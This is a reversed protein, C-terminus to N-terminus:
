PYRSPPAAISRAAKYALGTINLLQNKIDLKRQNIHQCQCPNIFFLLDGCPSSYREEICPTKDADLKRVSRQLTFEFGQTGHTKLVSCVHEITINGMGRTQLESFLLEIEPTIKPPQPAEPTPKLLERCLSRLKDLFPKVEIAWSSVPYNTFSWGNGSTATNQTWIALVFIRHRFFAAKASRASM